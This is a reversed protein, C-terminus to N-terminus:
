WSWSQSRHSPDALSWVPSRDAIGLFSYVPLFPGFTFGYSSWKLTYDERYSQFLYQMSWSSLHLSLRISRFHIWLIVIQPQTIKAISMQYQMSRSRNYHYVETDLVDCFLKYGTINIYGAPESTSRYDTNMQGTRHSRILLSDMLHDDPTSQDERYSQFVNEMYRRLDMHHYVYMEPM